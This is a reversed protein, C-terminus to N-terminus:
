GTRRVSEEAVAEVALECEEKTVCVHPGLRLGANPRADVDIGREALRRAVELPEPVDICVMGGRRSDVSPTRVRLGLSAARDLITHTLELSRARIQRLGVKLTWRLGARASYVPELAPTGQEFRRAGAAAIFQDSFAFTDAHGLWGPYAPVLRECLQPDVYAFALGMGGGGLWKHTGGIVVHAGLERVDIPVIGVAQYADIVVIAGSDRAKQVVVPDLLEGTRPSVLSLTVVAAGDDLRGDLLTPSSHEGEATMIEEIRFGRARQAGWVFRTSHFDASSFLVRDRAGTPSLSSAIAAHAATASDRLMVSGPPANLLKELLGRMEDLREVWSGIVRQRQFLSIRYADLDTLMKDPFAGMGHSALFVRERLVPFRVREEAFDVDSM